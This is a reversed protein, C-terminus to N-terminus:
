LTKPQWIKRKLVGLVHIVSSKLTMNYQYQARDYYKECYRDSDGSVFYLPINMIGTDEGLHSVSSPSCLGKILLPYIYKKVWRDVHAFERKSGETDIGQNLFLWVMCKLYGVEDWETLNELMNKVSLYMRQNYKAAVEDTKAIVISQYGLVNIMSVSGCLSFFDYITDIRPNQFGTLRHEPKGKLNGQIQFYGIGDDRLASVIRKLYKSNEITFDIKALPGLNRCYIFDYYNEELNSDFFDDQFYTINTNTLQEAITLLDESIDCGSVDTSYASFLETFYGWAAGYDLIRKNKLGYFASLFDVFSKNYWLLSDFQRQESEMIDKNTSKYANIEWDRIEENVPSPSQNNTIDM